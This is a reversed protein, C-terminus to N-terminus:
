AAQIIVIVVKGHVVGFLKKKARQWKKKKATYLIPIRKFLIYNNGLKTNEYGRELFM